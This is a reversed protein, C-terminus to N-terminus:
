QNEARLKKKNVGTIVAGTAWLCPQDLGSIPPQGPHGEVSLMSPTAADGTHSQSDHATLIDAPLCQEHEGQGGYMLVLNFKLATNDEIAKQLAPMTGTAPQAPRLRGKPKKLQNCLDLQMAMSCAAPGLINVKINYNERISRKLKEMMHVSNVQLDGQHLTRGTQAGGRADRKIARRWVNTTGQETKVRKGDLARLATMRAAVAPGLVQVVQDNFKNSYDAHGPHGGRQGFYCDPFHCPGLVEAWCMMNCGMTPNQVQQPWPPGGNSVQNCGLYKPALLPLTGVDVGVGALAVLLPSVSAM